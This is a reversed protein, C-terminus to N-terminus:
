TRETSPTETERIIGAIQTALKLAESPVLISLILDAGAVVDTLSAVDRLGAAEALGRSRKSRGALCTIVDLGNERLACGVNSGMDGPSLIAITHVPM